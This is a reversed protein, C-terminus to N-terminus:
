SNDDVYDENSAIDKITIFDDKLDLKESIHM